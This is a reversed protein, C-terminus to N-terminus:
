LPRRKELDCMFFPTHYMGRTRQIFNTDEKKGRYLSVLNILAHHSTCPTDLCGAICVAFAIFLLGRFLVLGTFLLM